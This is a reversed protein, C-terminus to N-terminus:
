KDFTIVADTQFKRYDKFDVQNRSRYRDASMNTEARLPLLYRAGGVEAFDYEVTTTSLTIPFRTPLEGVETMRLISGTEPDVAVEGHYAAVIHNPGEAVTGYTVHYQSHAQDVQYAFVAARQKHVTTWGKWRFAAQTKPHFLYLLMTGFEGKTTPGGTNMYDLLTPKGDIEMLKYEERHEFFSLKVTLVDLRSWRNNSKPDQYRSVVQTCIFDPLSITYNLAKLQAREILAKAEAESLKQAALPIAAGALVLISLVRRM